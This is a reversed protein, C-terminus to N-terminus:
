LNYDLKIFKLYVKVYVTILAVSDTNLIKNVYEENKDNGYKLEISYNLKKVNYLVKEKLKLILEKDYAIYLCENYIKLEKIINKIEKKTVMM